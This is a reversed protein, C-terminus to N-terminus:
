TGYLTEFGRGFGFVVSWETLGRVSPMKMTLPMHLVPM